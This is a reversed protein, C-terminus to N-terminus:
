RTPTVLSLPYLKNRDPSEPDYVVCIVSGVVPPAKSTRGTGSAVGGSLLPFDYTMSSHTSGHSTRHRNHGTVLGPAARGESLLRRQRHIAFLCLGGAVVLAVAVVYPLIVPVGTRPIGGLDNIGPDTPVYRVALASGVQLSRRREDPVRVHGEYSRGEVIFRYNVRRRDDGSSWLRTVEGTATVGREVLARGADAQRIALQSLGIFAGIAAVFLLVAVVVLSRGAATLRVDRPRSNTLPPPLVFTRRLEALPLRVDM